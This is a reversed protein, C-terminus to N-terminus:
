IIVKLIQYILITLNSCLFFMYNMNILPKKCKIKIINNGEKKFKIEFAFNIKEDNLYLECNEKLENENDIGNFSSDRIKIQEYCNLIQIPNKLEKESIEYECILFNEEM